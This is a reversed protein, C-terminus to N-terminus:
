YEGNVPITRTIDCCYGNIQTGADIMVTESAYSSGPPFHLVASNKDAAVITDFSTGHAGNRMFEAELEIQITKECFQLNTNQLSERIKGFGAAAATIANRILAIEDSDKPRRCSDIIEAAEPSFPYNGCPTNECALVTHGPINGSHKKLWAPLESVPRGEPSDRGGEWIIEDEDVPRVFSTWGEGPAYAMACGSRRIGSLWYHRPHPIFPYTQDLGGPKGIPEGSFVIINKGMKELAAAAKAQRSIITKDSFIM